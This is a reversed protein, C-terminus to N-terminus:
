RPRQQANFQSLHTSDKGNAREDRSDISDISIGHLTPMRPHDYKAYAADSEETQNSHL